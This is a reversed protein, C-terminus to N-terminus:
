THDLLMTLIRAVDRQYAWQKDSVQQETEAIIMIALLKAIEEEMAIPRTSEETRVVPRKSIPVHVVFTLVPEIYRLAGTKSVAERLTWLSMVMFQKIAATLRVQGPSTARSVPSSHAM